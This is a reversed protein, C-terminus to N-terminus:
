DDIFVGREQASADFQELAAHGEPGLSEVMLHLLVTLLVSPLAPSDFALEATVPVAVVEDALEALPGVPADCILAIRLDCARAHELADLLERPHRPLAIALLWTAGARAAAALGDALLSGARDLVRVDPLVRAALYGFHAAAPASVRLGVVPLPRSAALQAALARMSEFDALRDRVAELGRIEAQVFAQLENRESGAESPRRPALASARLAARFEPFGAFGLAAAFRTVSPQSVGARAAVELSTLFVAEDAHAFLYRAIRRQSPSLRRERLLEQLSATVGSADAVAIAESGDGDRQM